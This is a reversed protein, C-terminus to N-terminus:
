RCIRKRSRTESTCSSVKGRRDCGNSSSETQDFADKYICLCDEIEEASLLSFAVPLQDKTVTNGRIGLTRAGSRTGAHLYVIEPKLELFAGIRYAIDYVTLEGVGSIPGVTKDVAVLLQDFNQAAELDNIAALLKQEAEKLVAEPIRRQHPHRKGDSLQCSAAVKISHSITPQKNYLAMEECAIKRFVRIYETVCDEIGM